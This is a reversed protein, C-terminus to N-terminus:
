NGAIEKMMEQYDLHESACVDPSCSEAPFLLCKLQGEAGDIFNLIGSLLHRYQEAMVELTFGVHCSGDELQKMSVIKAFCDMHTGHLLLVCFLEEGIEFMQPLPPPLRASFGSMSVDLIKGFIGQELGEDFWVASRRSVRRRHCMRRENILEQKDVGSVVILPEM